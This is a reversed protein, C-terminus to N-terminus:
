ENSNNEITIDQEKLKNGPHEITIVENIGKFTNESIKVHNWNYASIGTYTM